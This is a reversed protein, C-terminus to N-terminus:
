RLIWDNVDLCSRSCAGAGVTSSVVKRIESSFAVGCYAAFGKSGVFTAIFGVLWWSAM